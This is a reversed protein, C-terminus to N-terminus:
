DSIIRITLVVSDTCEGDTITYVTSYDGTNDGPENARDILDWISPDFTGNRPVGPELLSLYLKRVEDWSPIAAAESQTLIKLNDAGANLECAPPDSRDPIVTVTLEVSDSCDGETITYTTTYDGLPDEAGAFANILDWISPDFSGNRPVGQDLLSLYLKRVEDWSEISSAESYQLELSNDEGASIECIPDDIDAIVELTLEVSDSCGDASLTYVTTYFGIPDEAEAFADILDWIAPDFTGNKPIDPALLSLYLKRVEDWSEISSAESVTLTKSNDPGACGYDDIGSNLENIPDDVLEENIPDVSCGILLLGLFLGILLKAKM